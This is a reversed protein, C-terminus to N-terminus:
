QTLWVKVKFAGVHVPTFGDGSGPALTLEARGLQLSPAGFSAKFQLRDCTKPQWPKIRRGYNQMLNKFYFKAFQDGFKQCSVGLTALTTSRIERVGLLAHQVSRSDGGGHPAGWTVVHGHQIAAFAAEAGEIQVDFLQQEVQRCDGGYCHDGWAAVTGDELIAAFANDTAAIHLVAASGTRLPEPFPENRPHRMLPSGWTQVNAVGSCYMAFNAATAALSTKQAVATLHDGGELCKDCSNGPHYHVM